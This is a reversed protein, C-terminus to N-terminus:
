GETDKPTVGVDLARCVDKARMGGVTTAFAAPIQQYPTSAITADAPTTAEAQGTLRMLTKRTIALDVLETEALALEVSLKAIQERLEEAATTAATEREAMLDLM